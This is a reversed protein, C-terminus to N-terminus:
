FSYAIKLGITPAGSWGGSIGYWMSGHKRCYARLGFSGEAVASIYECCVDYAVGLNAAFYPSVKKKTFETRFNLYVPAFICEYFLPDYSVGVGLGMYFHQSFRIGNILSIGSSTGIGAEVIGMYGKTKSRDGSVDPLAKTVKEKVPVAEKVELPTVRKIESASYYFVDGSETEVVYGGDSQLEAYGTVDAKGGKLEVKSKVKVDQASMVMCSALAAIIIAIRKM